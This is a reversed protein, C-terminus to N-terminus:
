QAAKPWGQRLAHLRSWDLGDVLAAMQAGSLKLVGDTIPPRRFAGAELRKWVLVLGSGHWVLLKSRDARKSLFVFVAGSFPDRGLV